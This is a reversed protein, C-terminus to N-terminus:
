RSVKNIDDIAAKELVRKMDNANRLTLGGDKRQLSHVLALQENIGSISLREKIAIQTQQFDQATEFPWYIPLPPIDLKNSDLSKAFRHRQIYLDSLGLTSPPPESSVIV